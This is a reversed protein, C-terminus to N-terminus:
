TDCAVYHGLKVNRPFVLNGGPQGDLHTEVTSGLKFRKHPDPILCGGLLAKTYPHRPNSFLEETDAMEVIQGKYMVAVKTSIYRAVGLNHTIFIYTLKDQKQLSDMFNLIQAQVSVDLASTIEDCVIVRPHVALARAINIRQRQGGSFEHPFRDAFSIPLEILQFLREVESNVKDISVIHHLLLVERFMEGISMRPNLSAYPDQFIMQMQAWVPQMKKNSYNSIDVGDFLIKGSTLKELRLIGRGLTSKGCGSEGVIGVVDGSHINMSVGDVAKIYGKRRALFREKPPYYIKVNQLQILPISM